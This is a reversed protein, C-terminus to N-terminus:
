DAQKLLERSYWLPYEAWTAARLGQNNSTSIRAEEDTLNRVEVFVKSGEALPNAFTSLDYEARLDVLTYGDTPLEEAALDTQDDAITVDFGAGLAGWDGFAGLRATTPPQLPLPGGGSIEGDVFDISAHLDWNASLFGGVNAAAYVEGGIFTADQQLYNFVPLEDEETGDPLSSFSTTLIRQSCTQGLPSITSRSARQAKWASASDGHDFSPNGIKSSIRPLTRVM